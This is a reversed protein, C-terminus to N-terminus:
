PSLEIRGKVDQLEGGHARTHARTHTNSPSLTLSHRLSSFTFALSPIFACAEAHKLVWVHLYFCLRLMLEKSFFTCFYDYQMGHVPIITWANGYSFDMLHLKFSFM